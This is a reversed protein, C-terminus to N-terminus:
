TWKIIINGAHTLPFENQRNYAKTSVLACIESEQMSDIGFQESIFNCTIYGFRCNKMVNNFYDLQVQRSLESWAYNSIVLDYETEDNSHRFSNICFIPSDPRVCSTFRSILSCTEPLDYIAYDGSTNIVTAQGGYGGGIEAINASFLSDGMMDYLDLAVKVYRLTTPSATYGDFSYTQPGGVKDNEVARDLMEQGRPHQRIYSMYASGQAYSVHEWIERLAPNQRFVDFMNKDHACRMCTDRYSKVDSISTRM